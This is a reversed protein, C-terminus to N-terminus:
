NLIQRCDNKIEYLIDLQRNLALEAFTVKVSDAGDRWLFSVANREVPLHTDATESWSDSPKGLEKRKADIL